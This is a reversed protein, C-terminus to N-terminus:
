TLVETPQGPGCGAPNPQFCFAKFYLWESNDAYIQSIQPFCIPIQPFFEKYIGAV